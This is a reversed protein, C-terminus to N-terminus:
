FCVIFVCFHVRMYFHVSFSVFLCVLEGKRSQATCPPTCAISVSPPIAIKSIVSPTISIGLPILSSLKSISTCSYVRVRVRVYVCLYM